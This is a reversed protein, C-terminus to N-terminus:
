LWMMERPKSIMQGSHPDRQRCFFDQPIIHILFGCVTSTKDEVLVRPWLSHKDLEAREISSLSARFEVTARASCAQEARNSTFEEYILPTTDDPLTFDDVRYIRRFAGQSLLTLRGLSARSIKM